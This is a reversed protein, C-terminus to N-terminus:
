LRLILWSLLITEFFVAAESKSSAGTDQARGRERMDM